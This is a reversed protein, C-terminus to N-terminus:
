SFLPLSGTKNHFDLFTAKSIQFIETNLREQQPQIDHEGHQKHCQLPVSGVRPPGEKFVIGLQIYPYRALRKLMISDDFCIEMFDNEDLDIRIVNGNAKMDGALRLLRAEEDAPSKARFTLNRYTQVSGDANLVVVPITHNGNIVKLVLALDTEEDASDISRMAEAWVEM